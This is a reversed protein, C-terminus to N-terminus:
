ISLASNQGFHSSNKPDGATVSQYPSTSYRYFFFGPRGLDTRAGGWDGSLQTRHWFDSVDTGPLGFVPGNNVYPLLLPTGNALSAHKTPVPAWPDTSSEPTQAITAKTGMGILVTSIISRLIFRAVPM